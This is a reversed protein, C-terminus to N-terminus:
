EDSKDIAQLDLPPAQAAELTLALADLADASLTSLDFRMTHEHTVSQNIEIKDRWEDPAANKLAFIRATVKPGENSSLLGAELHAVRKAKAIKVAAAFAPINVMWEGVTSRSVGIEGAFATLSYGQGMFSKVEEIYADVFKSPRGQPMLTRPLRRHQYSQTTDAM